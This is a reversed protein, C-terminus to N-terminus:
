RASFGNEAAFDGAEGLYPSIRGNVKVGPLGITNNLCKFQNFAVGCQEAVQDLRVLCM